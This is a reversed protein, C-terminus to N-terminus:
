ARSGSAKSTQADRAPGSAVFRDLVDELKAIELPKGLVDNM